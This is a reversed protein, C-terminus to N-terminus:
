TVTTEDSHLGPVGGSSMSSCAAVLVDQHAIQSQAAVLKVGASSYAYLVSRCVEAFYVLRVRLRGRASADM